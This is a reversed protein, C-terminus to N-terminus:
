PLPKCNAMLTAASPAPPGTVGPAGRVRPPILLLRERGPQSSPRFVCPFVSNVHPTLAASAYYTMRFSFAFFQIILFPLSPPLLVVTASRMDSSGGISHLSSLIISSNLLIEHFLYYIIISLTRC